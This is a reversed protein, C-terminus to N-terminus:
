STNSGGKDLVRNYRQCILEFTLHSFASSSNHSLLWHFPPPSFIIHWLYLASVTSSFSATCLVLNLFTATASVGLLVLTPQSKLGSPWVRMKFGSRDDTVSMHQTKLYKAVAYGLVIMISATFLLSFVRIVLRMRGVIRELYPDRAKRGRKVERKENVNRLPPPALPTSASPDYATHIAPLLM